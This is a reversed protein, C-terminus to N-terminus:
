RHNCGAGSLSCALWGAHFAGSYEPPSSSPSPSSSFCSPSAECDGQKGDAMTDALVMEVVTWLVIDELVDMDGKSMGGGM